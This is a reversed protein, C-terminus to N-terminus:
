KQRTAPDYLVILMEDKTIEGVHWLSTLGGRRPPPCRAKVPGIMVPSKCIPKGTDPNVLPLATTEGGVQWSWGVILWCIGNSVDPGVAPVFDSTIIEDPRRRNRGM